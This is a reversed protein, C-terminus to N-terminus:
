TRSGTPSLHTDRFGTPRKLGLGMARDAGIHGIWVVAVLLATNSGAWIGVGAVALPTTYTHIANYALAGTGDDLLYGVMSVDPALATVALLWLPGDLWGYGLLAALLVALGELRLLPRVYM